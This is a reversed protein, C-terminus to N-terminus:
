QKIQNDLQGALNNARLGYTKGNGNPQDVCGKTKM